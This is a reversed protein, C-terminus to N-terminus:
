NHNQIFRNWWYQRDEKKTRGHYNDKFDCINCDYMKPADSNCNPCNGLLLRWKGIIKEKFTRM